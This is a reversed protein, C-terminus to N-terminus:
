SAAVAASDVEVVTLATPFSLVNDPISCPALLRSIQRYYSWVERSSVCYHRALAAAGARDEGRGELRVYVDASRIARRVVDQPPVNLKRGGYLVLIEALAAEGVAEGVEPLLSYEADFSPDDGDPVPISLGGFLDLFPLLKKKGLIVHLEQLAPYRTLYLIVLDVVKDLNSITGSTLRFVNEEATGNRHGLM